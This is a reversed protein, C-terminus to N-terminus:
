GKEDVVSPISDSCISDNAATPVEEEISSSGAERETREEAAGKRRKFEAAEKKM